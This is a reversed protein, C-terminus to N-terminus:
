HKHPNALGTHEELNEFRLENRKQYKDLKAGLDQLDAKTAMNAQIDEQGAKLTELATDTHSKFDTVDVKIGEVDAKIGVVDAKIGVVDAKIGVVDAKIGVVDAQLAKIDTKISSVDAQLASLTNGQQELVKLIKEENANTM